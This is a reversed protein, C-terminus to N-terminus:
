NTIHTPSLYPDSLCKYPSYRFSRTSSFDLTYPPLGNWVPAVRSIINQYSRNQCLIPALIRLTHSRSSSPPLLVLHPSLSVNHTGSLISHFTCLDTIHRRYSLSNLSLRTLRASYFLFTCEPIKNTFFRQVSELRDIDYHSTPSWVCSGYELIPRVFTTYFKLM